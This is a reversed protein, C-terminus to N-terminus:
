KGGTCIIKGEEEEEEKMLFLIERKREWNRWRSEKWFNNLDTLTKFGEFIYPNSAIVKLM